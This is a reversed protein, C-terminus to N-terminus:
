LPEDDLNIKATMEQNYVNLTYDIDRFARTNRPDVSDEDTLDMHTEFSYAHAYYAKKYGFEGSAIQQQTFITKYDSGSSLGTDFKVGYVTKMIPLFLEHRCLDIARNASIENSTKVVIYFDFGDILRMRMSDSAPFTATADTHTSRDKSVLVDHMMVYGWLDDRDSQKTYLEILRDVNVIGAVRVESDVFGNIYEGDQFDGSISFETDSIKTASYKGGIGDVRIELLVENGTLVPIINNSKVKFTQRNPVATIEFSDNWLPDTFGDFKAYLHDPDKYTLDHEDSTFTFIFGDQSVSLISTKSEVLSLTVGDNTNVGHPSSTEITASGGSASISIPDLRTSFKDTYQPLVLRFQNVVDFLKM